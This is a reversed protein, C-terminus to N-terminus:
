YGAHLGWSAVEGDTGGDLQSDIQGNRITVTECHRVAAPCLRSPMFYDQLASHWRYLAGSKFQQDTAGILSTERSPNILCVTLHKLCTSFVLSVDNGNEALQLHIVCHKSCKGKACAYICLSKGCWYTIIYTAQQYKGESASGLWSHCAAPRPACSWSWFCAMRPQVAAM